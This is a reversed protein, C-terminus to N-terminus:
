EIPVWAKASLNFEESIRDVDRRAREMRGSNFDMQIEIHENVVEARANFLAVSDGEKM